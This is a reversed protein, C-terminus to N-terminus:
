VRFAIGVFGRAGAPADPAPVGAIEAEIVGSSFDTGDIVALQEIPAQQTATVATVRVGQKGEHAVATATVNHLRLGATTELPYVKAQSWADTPTVLAAITAVAMCIHRIMELGIRM